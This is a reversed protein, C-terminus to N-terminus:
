CRSTPADGRRRAAGRLLGFGDLAPMMVDTVVLDAGRRASEGRAGARRRSGGRREVRNGLLRQSTTACTPTTTPSSSAPASPTPARRSPLRPTRRRPRRTSGANQRWWSRTHAPLRPRRRRCRDSKIRRCITPAARCRSPSPRGTARAARSRSAAATCGSWTRCWRWASGRVRTRARARAKSGTSGSSSARCSTSRSHRRRHGGGDPHRSRRRARLSVRIGGDFRSSSRTRCCTSSSRRGCRRPRRLGARPLPPLRGRAAPGGREIASRFTSALDATLRALDTPEYHPRRADRKSARSISCRTSWSSCGCSTAIARDRARRAAAPRRGVLADETPGLMLTLPTRFEHSVNSFFATKARDIAALAEARQREEEYVRANALGAAIQGSSCSSSAAIPTTSPRYPNLGAIFVATPRPQGQPQSRCWWRM